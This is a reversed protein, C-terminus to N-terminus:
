PDFTSNNALASFSILAGCLLKLHVREGESVM